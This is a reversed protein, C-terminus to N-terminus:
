FVLMPYKPDYPSIQISLLELASPFYFPSQTPMRNLNNYNGYQPYSLEGPFLNLLTLM